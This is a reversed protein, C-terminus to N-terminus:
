LLPKRSCSKNRLCPRAVVAKVPKGYVGAVDVLWRCLVWGNHFKKPCPYPICIRYACGNSACPGSGVGACSVSVGSGIGAGDVGDDVLPTMAGAGDTGPKPSM